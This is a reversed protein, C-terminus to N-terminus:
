SWTKRAEDILKRHRATEEQWDGTVGTHMNTNLIQRLIAVLLKIATKRFLITATDNM